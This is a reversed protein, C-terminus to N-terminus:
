AERRGGRPKPSIRGHDRRDTVIETKAVSENHAGAAILMVCYESFPFPVSLELSVIGSSRNWPSRDSIITWSPSDQLLYPAEPVYGM